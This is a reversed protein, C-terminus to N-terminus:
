KRFNRKQRRPAQQRPEDHGGIAATPPAGQQMVTNLCSMTTQLVEGFDPPDSKDFDGFKDKLMNGVVDITQMMEPPLSRLAMGVFLLTNIHQWIADRTEPSLDARWLRGFDIGGPFVLHDFLAPDRAMVLASHPGLSQIFMDLPGSPNLLVLADFGALFLKIQKEEPFVQALEQMFAKLTKNFM